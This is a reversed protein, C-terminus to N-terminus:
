KLLLISSKLSTQSSSYVSFLKKEELKPSNKPPFFFDSITASKTKNDDAKFFKAM